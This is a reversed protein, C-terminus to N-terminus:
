MAMGGDVTLVQGTIYNSLDSALFLAANAVDDVNGIRGLPIESLYKDQIEKSLLETMKTQIYGPAIANVCVNKRALEKALSKTFGIMGAKSAAYNTQAATGILGVISSINIIKGSRAKMMSRAIVRSTNYVSKLNIAIVEDWDEESMKIIFGDKTIGANNVLIDITSFEVYVQNIAEEVLKTKSVDVKKFLIKQLPDSKNKELELLVDQGNKENTGFIAVSAGNKVFLLAIAKGIGATGGTVIAKKNKLLNM